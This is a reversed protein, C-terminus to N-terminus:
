KKSKSYAWFALIVAFIMAFLLASPAGGPGWVNGNSSNKGLYHVTACSSLAAIGAFISLRKYIKKNERLDYPLQHVQVESADLFFLQPALGVDMREQFFNSGIGDSWQGLTYQKLSLLEQDSLERNSLYETVGLLRKLKEDFVFRLKGNSLQANEMSKLIAGDIHDCFNEDSAIGDLSRLASPKEVHEADGNLALNRHDFVAAMGVIRITYM